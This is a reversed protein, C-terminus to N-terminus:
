VHNEEKQTLNKGLRHPKEGQKFIVIVLTAALVFSCLAVLVYGGIGGSRLMAGYLGSTGACGEDPLGLMLAVLMVLSAGSAAALLTNVRRDRRMRMIHAKSRVMAIREDTSRLAIGECLM